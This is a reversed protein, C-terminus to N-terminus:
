DAEAREVRLVNWGGEVPPYNRDKRYKALIEQLLPAVPVTAKRATTKPAGIHGRWKKSVVSIEGDKYDEWKLAPIEIRSLGTFAAVAFITRAPVPLELMLAIEGHDYAHGNSVRIKLERETLDGAKRGKSMGGGQNAVNSECGHHREIPARRHVRRVSVRSCAPADQTVPKAALQQALGSWGERHHSQSADGHHAERRRAETSKATATSPLLNWTIRVRWNSACRATSGTSANSTLYYVFLRNSGHQKIQGRQGRPSAM